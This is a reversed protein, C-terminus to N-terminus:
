RAGNLIYDRRRLLFDPQLNYQVVIKEYETSPIIRSSTPPPLNNNFQQNSRMISSSHPTHTTEISEVLGEYKKIELKSTKRIHYTQQPSNLLNDSGLLLTTVITMKNLTAPNIIDTLIKVSEQV